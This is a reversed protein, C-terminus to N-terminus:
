FPVKERLKELAKIKNKDPKAKSASCRWVISAPKRIGGMEPLPVFALLCDTRDTPVIRLENVNGDNSIINVLQCLDLLPKVHNDTDKRSIPVEISVNFRCTIAPIGIMQMRAIWGAKDRWEKYEPTLNRKGRKTLRRQFMRNASPPVPVTLIVTPAGGDTIM